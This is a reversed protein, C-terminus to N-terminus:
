SLRDSQVLRLAKTGYRGKISVNSSWRTARQRHKIMRRKGSCSDVLRHINFLQRSHSLTWYVGGVGVRRFQRTADHRRHSCVRRCDHGLKCLSTM